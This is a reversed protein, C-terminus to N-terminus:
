VVFGARIIRDPGDRLPGLSITKITDPKRVMEEITIRTLRGTSDPLAPGRQRSQGLCGTSQLDAGQHRAVGEPMWRNKCLHRRGEVFDATAAQDQTDARSPVLRLIVREPQREIM